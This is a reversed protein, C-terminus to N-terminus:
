EAVARYLYGHKIPTFPEGLIAFQKALDEQSAPAILVASGAELSGEIEREEKTPIDLVFPLNPKEQESHIVFWGYTDLMRQAFEQATMKTTM